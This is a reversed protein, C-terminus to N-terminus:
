ATHQALDGSLSPSKLICQHRLFPCKELSLSYNYIITYKNGEKELSLGVIYDVEGDEDFVLLKHFPTKEEPDKYQVKQPLTKGLEELASVFLDDITSVNIKIM